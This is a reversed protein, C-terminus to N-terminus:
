IYGKTDGCKCLCYEKNLDEELILIKDGRRFSIFNKDNSEFDYLAEAEVFNEKNEMKVTTVYKKPCLGKTGNLECIMWNENIDKVFKMEEDKYFLLIGSDSNVNEYNCLARYFM